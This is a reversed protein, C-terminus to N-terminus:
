TNGTLGLKIRLKMAAPFALLFGVEKLGINAMNTMNAMNNM